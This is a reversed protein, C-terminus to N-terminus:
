KIKFIDYFQNFLKVLMSNTEDTKNNLTQLEDFIWRNLWAETGFKTHNEKNAQTFNEATYSNDSRKVYSSKKSQFAKSKTFVKVNKYENNLKDFMADTVRKYEEYDWGTRKVTQYTSQSVNFSNAIIKAKVGTQWMQHMHKIIIPTVKSKSMKNNETKHKKRQQLNKNIFYCYLM